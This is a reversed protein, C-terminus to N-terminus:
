RKSRWAALARSRHSLATKEAASMEAFSRGDGERPVFLADYGFGQSGRECVGITGEVTGRYCAVGDATAWALVTTFRARRDESDKLADLLKSRNASDSREPGAFHASDVGPAGGLADVELGSDDALSPIGTQEWLFLAKQTANAELTAGDERLEGSLGFDSPQLVEWDPPLVARIEAVKHPNQTALVFKM